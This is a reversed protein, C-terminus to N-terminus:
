KESVYKIFSQGYDTILVREFPRTGIGGIGADYLLSKSILDQVLFLYEKKDINYNGEGLFKKELDEKKDDLEKREHSYVHDAFRSNSFESNDIERSREVIKQYDEIHKDHLILIEFQKDTIKSIIDLFSEIYERREPVEIQRVLIQKFRKLKEDSETRSIKELITEFIDGFEESNIYESNIVNENITELYDKLNQVFNNIRDQKIRGRHEFLFENLPTGIYPLSQILIKLGTIQTYKDIKM